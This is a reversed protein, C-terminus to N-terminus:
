NKVETKLGDILSDLHNQWDKFVNDDTDKWLEVTEREGDKDPVENKIDTLYQLLFEFSKQDGIFAKVRKKLDMTQDEDEYKLNGTTKFLLYLETLAM